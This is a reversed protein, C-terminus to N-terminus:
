SSASESGHPRFNSERDGALSEPDTRVEVAGLTSM